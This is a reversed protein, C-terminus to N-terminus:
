AFTIVTENKFLAEFDIFAADRAAVVEESAAEEKGYSVHYETKMGAGSKEIKIDYSLLDGYDEDEDRHELERMISQKSLIFLEVGKTAYNYLPIAWVKKAEPPGKDDRGAVKTYKPKAKRTDAPNFTLPKATGDDEYIWQEWAEEMESLFRVRNMGTEIKFYGSGSTPIGTYDQKFFAM